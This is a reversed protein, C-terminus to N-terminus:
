SCIKEQEIKLRQIEGKLICIIQNIYGQEAQKFKEKIDKSYTGTLISGGTNVFNMIDENSIKANAGANIRILDIKIKEIQRQIVGLKIFNEKKM